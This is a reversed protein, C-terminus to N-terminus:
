ITDIIRCRIIVCRLLQVNDHSSVHTLLVVPKLLCDLSWVQILHRSNKLKEKGEISIEQGTSEALVVLEIASPEAEM